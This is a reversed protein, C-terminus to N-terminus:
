GVQFNDSPIHDNLSFEVNGISPDQTWDTRTFHFHGLRGDLLSQLLDIVKRAEAPSCEIRVDAAVDRQGTLEIKM